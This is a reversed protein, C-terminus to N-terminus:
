PRPGAAEADEIGRPGLGSSIGAVRDSRDRLQEGRRHRHLEDFPALDAQVVAHRLEQGGVDRLAQVHHIADISGPLDGDLLQETM